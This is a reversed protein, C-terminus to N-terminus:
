RTKGYLTKIKGWTANKEANADQMATRIASDIASEDYAGADPGSSVYRVVGGGDVVVFSNYPLGYSTAVDKGQLLLPFQLGADVQMREIQDTPSNWCDIGLVTLGKYSGSGAFKRQIDRGSNVCVDANPGFFFLLVVNGIQSSLSQSNGDMDTLTFGPANDGVSVAASPAASIALALLILIGACNAQKWVGRRM